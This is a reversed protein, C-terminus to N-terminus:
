TEQYKVDCLCISWRRNWSNFIDFCCSVNSDHRLRMTNFVSMKQIYLKYIAINNGLKKWRPRKNPTQTKENYKHRNRRAAQKITKRFTLFFSFFANLYIAKTRAYTNFSFTQIHSAIMHLVTSIEISATCIERSYSHFPITLWSLFIGLVM